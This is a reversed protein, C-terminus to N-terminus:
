ISVSSNGDRPPIPNDNDNSAESFKVFCGDIRNNGEGNCMFEKRLVYAIGLNEGEM